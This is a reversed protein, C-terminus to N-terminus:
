TTAEQPTTAFLDTIFQDVTKGGLAVWIEDLPDADHALVDSVYARDAIAPLDTVTDDPARDAWPMNDGDDDCPMVGRMCGDGPWYKCLEARCARDALAAPPRAITITAIAPRPLWYGARANPPLGDLDLTADSSVHITLDPLEAKRAAVWHTCDDACPMRQPCGCPEADALLRDVADLDPVFPPLPPLAPEVEVPEAPPPAHHRGAPREPAIADAYAMDAAVDRSGFPDATDDRAGLWVWVALGGAIGIIVLCAVILTALIM